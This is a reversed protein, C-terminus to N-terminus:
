RHRHPAVSLRAPRRKAAPGRGFEENLADLACEKFEEFLEQARSENIGYTGGWLDDGYDERPEWDEWHNAYDDASRPTM